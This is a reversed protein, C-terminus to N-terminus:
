PPSMAAPFGPCGGNESGILARPELAKAARCGDLSSERHAGAYHAFGGSPAPRIRDCPFQAHRGRRYALPSPPERSKSQLSKAIRRTGGLRANVIRLHRLAPHELLEVLRRRLTESEAIIDDKALGIVVATGDGNKSGSM